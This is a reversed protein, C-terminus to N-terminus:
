CSSNELQPRGLAQGAHGERISPRAPFRNFKLVAFPCGHTVRWVCSRLPTRRM